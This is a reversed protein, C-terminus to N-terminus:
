LVANSEHGNVRVKIEITEGTPFPDAIHFQVENIGVRGPAAGAFAPKVAKGSFRLEVPDILSFKVSAPAAFGDPPHPHCPGFGTGMATITEGRRAPDKPTVLSGDPHMAVWYPKGSIQHSFLGPANRAVEFVGIADPQGPNHVTLSQEGLPVS